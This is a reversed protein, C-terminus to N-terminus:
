ESINPGTRRVRAVNQRHTYTLVFFLINPKKYTERKTKPPPIGDRDRVGGLRFKLEGSDFCRKERGEGGLRRGGTAEEGWGGGWQKLGQEM